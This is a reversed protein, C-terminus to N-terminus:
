EEVCIEKKGVARLTLGLLTLILLSLLSLLIYALGQHFALKSKSYMFITAITLAAMPFSYAWWSLYFKIKLFQRYQVALLIFLFLAFSYLIKAFGDLGFGSVEHGMLKVYAIFGIAPPAIMIFLTPVMRDALPAHFIIRNFFITFLAVWFILGISFYFWSIDSHFHEVGAIPVIMNGVVPIFWSPNSHQIQFMNHQMWVSLIGLTFLTHVAVGIIWLYRSVDRQVELFVVSFLLLSISITPFFNIRIPHTFEHKVAEPFRLLKTTYIVGIMVFLSLAVVLVIGSISFPMGLIREARQFAISTGAMGLIVAFFSIPFNRLRLQIESLNQSLTPQQQAQSM